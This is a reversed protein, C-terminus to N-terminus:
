SGQYKEQRRYDSFITTDQLSGLYQKDMKRV